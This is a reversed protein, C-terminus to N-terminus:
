KKQNLNLSDFGPVQYRLIRLDAFQEVVYDFDDAVEGTKNLPEKCSIILGMSYILIQKLNNM